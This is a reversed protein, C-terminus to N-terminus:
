IQRALRQFIADGNEFFKEKSFKELVFQRASQGVQALREPHALVTALTDALMVPDEPKIKWGTVNEIISRDMEGVDTGIVPLGVQMAEHMAICFGERRSPQLYLHQTQLFHESSSAFGAFRINTLKLDKVMQELHVREQGEGAVTVEFAPLSTYSQLRKLATCLIDYGKAIHLRGLSGARIVEGRQWLQAPKVEPSAQFVPWSMVRSAPLKLRTRTIDAVCESDCVWLKSLSKAARLLRVNGPKLFANHQWSIVPVRLSRGVQQGILTSRTLSTWIQTPHWAALKRRLWFYAQLHDSEGGERIHIELGAAKLAPEARRDRPTLVFVGVDCGRARFFGTVSPVMAGTGGGELSNIIYAIKKPYRM